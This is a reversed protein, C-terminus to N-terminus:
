RGLRGQTAFPNAASKAAQRGFFTADAVSMGSAYGKSTRPIGAATRGAAYLGPIVGRDPTVVEGTPLTYLGGLTFAAPVIKDLEYSVLVDTSLDFSPADEYPYIRDM